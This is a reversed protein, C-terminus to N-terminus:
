WELGREAMCRKLRVRIKNNRNAIPVYVLPLFTLIGFGNNIISYISVGILFGMIVADYIKIKKYFKARKLLVDDSLDSFENTNM